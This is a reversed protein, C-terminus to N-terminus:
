EGANERAEAEAAEAHKTVEHTQEALEFVFGAAGGKEVVYKNFIADLTAVEDASIQIRTTKWQLFGWTFLEANAAEGTDKGGTPVMIPDPLGVSDILANLDDESYGTGLLDGEGLEELLELLKTEDYGAEDSARNDILVIKAAGEEDVDVFTVAIHTWELEVAATFTHNGALIEFPRGTKTGKNVVIPKYQGNVELSSKILQVDGSRPNRGYLNLEKTAHALKVIEPHIQHKKQAAM